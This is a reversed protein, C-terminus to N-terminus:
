WKMIANGDIIQKQQNDGEEKKMKRNGEQEWCEEEWKSKKSKGM